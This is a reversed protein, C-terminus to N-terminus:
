LCVEETLVQLFLRYSVEVVDRQLGCQAAVAIFSLNQSPVKPTETVTNRHTAGTSATFSANFKFLPVRKNLSGANGVYMSEVHFTFTGFNPLM